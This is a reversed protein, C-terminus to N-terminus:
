VTSRPSATDGKREKRAGIGGAELGILSPKKLRDVKGSQKGGQEGSLGWEGSIGLRWIDELYRHGDDM